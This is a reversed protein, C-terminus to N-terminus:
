RKKKPKYGFGIPGGVQRVSSWVMLNWVTCALGALGLASRLKPHADGIKSAGYIVLPGGVAGASLRVSQAIEETGPNACYLGNSKVVKLM